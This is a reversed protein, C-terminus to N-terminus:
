GWLSDAGSLLSLSGDPGIAYVAEASGGSLDRVFVEYTENTDGPVLDSAFSGFAIKTGDASLAPAFSRGNGPQGNGSTSVLTITGTTLDKLFIDAEGNIDDPVLNTAFSQFTVKTGDASISPQVSWNNAPEAGSTASVLTIAGTALDKLFVQQYGDNGSGPVLNTAFSEFAVKTGDASLSPNNSGSNGMEGNASTSARRLTGTPDSLYIVGGRDAGDPILGNSVFAVTTGDASLSPESGGGKEPDPPGPDLVLSALKIAGTTLDKVFVDRLLNIDGPVLNNALSWFAVKTSDASLSPTDFSSFSENNGQQGSASTSARTIAGTTLDKIFVDPYGNTDNPVLNSAYSYFAVTTGDASLSPNRSLDNGQEGGASASVLTIAGTTLDKIFIDTEANTDDSVLNTDGSEFAVKTGDASLSPNSSFNNGQEGGASTGARIISAGGGLFRLHEIRSLTDTGEDLGDGAGNLDRVTVTGSAAVSVAYNTRAGAYVAEDIGNGGDLLDDGADGWLRDSCNEGYIQDDAAGGHLRDGGNGGHVEDPGADGWLDDAGNDGHLQDGGDGGRIEDNGNNGHILDAASTAPGGAVGRSATATDIVDAQNTGSITAM